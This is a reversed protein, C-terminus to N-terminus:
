REHSVKQDEFEKIVSEDVHRQRLFDLVQLLIFVWKQALHICSAKTYFLSSAASLLEGVQQVTIAAMETICQLLTSVCQAM